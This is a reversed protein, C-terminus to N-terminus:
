SPRIQTGFACRYLREEPLDYQQLAKAVSGESMCDKVVMRYHKGFMPSLPKDCIPGVHFLSVYEPPNWSIVRAIFKQHRGRFLYEDCNSSTIKTFGLALLTDLNQVAM